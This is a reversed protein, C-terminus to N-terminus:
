RCVHETFDCIQGAATCDTAYYCPTAITIVTRSPAHEVGAQYGAQYSARVQPVVQPACSDAWSTNLRRGQTGANYGAEYAYGPDGCMREIHRQGAAGLSICAPVLLLCLLTRM